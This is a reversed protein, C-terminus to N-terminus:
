TSFHAALRDLTAEISERNRAPARMIRLLLASRAPRWDFEETVWTGGDGPELVFRWVHGGMHRWAILRPEEFEVVENSIRYPLGIRMQMRFRSGLELREPADDASGRVSGSGDFVPHAAPDALLDFVAEPPAPVFRRGREVREPPEDHTHEHREHTSM